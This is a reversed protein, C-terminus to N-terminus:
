YIKLTEIKGNYELINKDETILTYGLDLSQCILMRDFPDSHIDPLKELYQFASSNNPCISFEHSKIQGTIFNYAPTPLPLKGLKTKIIMEWISYTRIFIKNEPNEIVEKHSENLKENGSIYWLFIHTDLLYNM